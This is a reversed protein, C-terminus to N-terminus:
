SHSDSCTTCKRAFPNPNVHEDYAAENRGLTVEDDAGTIYYEWAQKSLKAKAVAKVEAVTIPDHAPKDKPSAM